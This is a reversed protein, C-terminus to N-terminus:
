GWHREGLYSLLAQRTRALSDQLATLRRAGQDLFQEGSLEKLKGCERFLEVAGLNGASGKLAHTRDAFTDFDQEGV